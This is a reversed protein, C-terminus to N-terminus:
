GHNRQNDARQQILMMMAVKEAYERSYRADFELIGAREEFWDREEESLLKLKESLKQETM